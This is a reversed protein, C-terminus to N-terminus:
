GERQGTAGIKAATMVGSSTARAKLHDRLSLGALGLEQLWLSAVDAHFEASYLRIDLLWDEEAPPTPGKSYVLYKGRPDQRELCLKASLGGVEAVDLV